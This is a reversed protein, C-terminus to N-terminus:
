LTNPPVSDRAKASCLTESKWVYVACGESLCQQTLNLVCSGVSILHCDGRFFAFAEQAFKNQIGSNTPLMQFFLAPRFYSCFPSCSSSGRHTLVQLLGGYLFLVSQRPQLSSILSPYSWYQLQKYELINKQVFMGQSRSTRGIGRFNDM